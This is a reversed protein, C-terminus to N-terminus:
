ASLGRQIFELGILLVCVGALAGSGGLFYKLRQRRVAAQATTIGETISGLVPLGSARALREATPYTNKLQGLGFAAAVGGGIGVILV